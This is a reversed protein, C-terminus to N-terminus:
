RAWIRSVCSLGVYKRWVTKGPFLDGSFASGGFTDSGRDAGGKADGGRADGGRANGGRTDGSRADGGRTACSGLTDKSFISGNPTVGNPAGDGRHSADRHV